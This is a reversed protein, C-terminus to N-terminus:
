KAYDLLTNFDVEVMDFIVILIIEPANTVNSISPWTLHIQM